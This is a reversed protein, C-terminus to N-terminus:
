TKQTGTQKVLARNVRPNRGPVYPPLPEYGCRRYLALAAQNRHGTELVLRTAGSGAAHQELLELIRRGLSAGRAKPQVFMKKVEATQPDLSRWGGCGVARSSGDLFGLVFLGYPPTFEEVVGALPDDAFGYLALQEAYLCQILRRAEPHDYPVAVLRSPAYGSLVGGSRYVAKAAGVGDGRGPTTM